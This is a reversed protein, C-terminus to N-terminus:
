PSHTGRGDNANYTTTEAYRLEAMQGAGVQTFTVNAFSAINGLIRNVAAQQGANFAEFGNIQAYGSYGAIGTPFSYTFANDDWRYGWLIGDIDQNGSRNVAIPM